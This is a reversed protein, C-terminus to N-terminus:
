WRWQNRSTMADVIKGAFWTNIIFPTSLLSGVFGRWELPTLDAVIIDNILDLGNSGIAVFVEGVIYAAVTRSTAAVIYGLTYFGLALVYTYPRSTIDSVKAVFPKCVAGIVSTAISLTSLVSSHQKYYSSADISYYSTTSQDLSYAWACVLVSAGVLLLTKRHSQAERYIAEMRTVGQTQVVVAPNADANDHERANDTPQRATTAVGDDSASASAGAASHKEDIPHAAM